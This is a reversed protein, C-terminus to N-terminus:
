LLYASVCKSLHFPCILPYCFLRPITENSQETLPRRQETTRRVFARNMSSGDRQGIQTLFTRRFVTKKKLDPFLTASFQLSTRLTHSFKLLNFM